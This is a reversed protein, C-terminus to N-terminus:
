LTRDAAQMFRRTWPLKWSVEFSSQAEAMLSGETCAWTGSRLASVNTAPCRHRLEKGSHWEINSRTFYSFFSSNTLRNHGVTKQTCQEWSAMSLARKHDWLNRWGLLVLLDNFNAFGFGRLCSGARIRFHCGSTGLRHSGNALM